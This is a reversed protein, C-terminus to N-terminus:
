QIEQGLAPISCIGVSELQAVVTQWRSERKIQKLEFETPTKFDNDNNM